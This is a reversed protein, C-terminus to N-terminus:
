DKKFKFRSKTHFLNLNLFSVAKFRQFKLSSFSQTQTNLIDSPKLM